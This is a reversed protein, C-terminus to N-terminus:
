NLVIGHLRMSSLSPIGGGNMVEATSHRPGQQRVGIPFLGGHGNYLLSTQVYHLDYFDEAGVLFRVGVGLYGVHAVSSLFLLM